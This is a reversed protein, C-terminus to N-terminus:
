NQLDVANAEALPRIRETVDALMEDYRPEMARVAALREEESAVAALGAKLGREGVLHLLAAVEARFPALTAEPDAAVARLLAAMRPKNAEKAYDLATRRYDDEAAPDCGAGLLLGALSPDDPGEAAAHHLATYGQWNKATADAGAAILLRAGGAAAGEPQTCTAARDLPMQGYADWQVLAASVLGPAPSRPLWPLLSPHPLCPAGAALTGEAQKTGLGAALDALRGEEAAAHLPYRATDGACPM